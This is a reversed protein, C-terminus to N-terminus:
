EKAPFVKLFSTYGYVTLRFEQTANVVVYVCFGKKTPIEWESTGVLKPDACEAGPDRGIAAKVSAQVRVPKGEKVSCIAAGNTVKGWVGNCMIDVPLPDKPANTFDVIARHWEGTATVAIMSLPCAGINEVYMAPIYKYVFAKANDPQWFEQQRACTSVIVMITKSPLAVTITSLSQRQVTAAGEYREGDVTFPLQPKLEARIDAPVGYDPTPVACGFFLVAGLLLSRGSKFSIRQKIM